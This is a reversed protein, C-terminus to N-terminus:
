LWQTGRLEEKVLEATPCMSEIHSSMVTALTWKYLLSIQQTKELWKLQYFERGMKM